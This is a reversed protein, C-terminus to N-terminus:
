GLIAKYTQMSQLQEPPLRQFEDNYQFCKNGSAMAGKQAAVEGGCSRISTYM